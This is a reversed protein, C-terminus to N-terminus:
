NNFKYISLHGIKKEFSYKNSLDINLIPKLNSNLILYKITGNNFDDNLNTYRYVKNQLSAQHIEVQPLICRDHSALNITRNDSFFYHDGLNSNLFDNVGEQVTSTGIYTSNVGRLIKFTYNYYHFISVQIGIIFLISSIKKSVMKIKNGSNIEKALILLMIVLLENFYNVGSGTKLAFIVSIIFWIFLSVTLLVNLSSLPSIWAKLNSKLISIFALTFLGFYILFDKYPRKLAYIIDIHNNVGDVINAKLFNLSYNGTLLVLWILFLAFCFGIILYFIAKWNKNILFFVGIILPLVVGNQKSAIAFFSCAGVLLILKSQNSYIYQILFYFSFLVFFLVLGDPRSLFNWPFLFVFLLSSLFIGFSKSSNFKQTVIKFFVVISGILFLLSICRSVIRIILFNASDIKLVTLIGDCILYYLPSYQTIAYPLHNPDQYLLSNDVLIQQLTYVVNSEVGRIDNTSFISLTMFSLLGFFVIYYTRKLLRNIIQNKEM